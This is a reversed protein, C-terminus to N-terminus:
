EGKMLERFKREGDQVEQYRRMLAMRQEPSLPRLIEIIQEAVARMDEPLDELREAM